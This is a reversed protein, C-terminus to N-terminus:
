FEAVMFGGTDDCANVYFEFYRTVGTEDVFSFGNDAFICGMSAGTVVFPVEPTLEDLTYLVDRVLYRRENGDSDDWSFNENWMIDLFSFERVTAETTFVIRALDERHIFEHYHEIQDLDYLGYSYPYWWSESDAFFLRVNASTLGPLETPAIVEPPTPSVAPTESPTPSPTPAVAESPAPTNEPLDGECGSLMLCAVLAVCAFKRFM